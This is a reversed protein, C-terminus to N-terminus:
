STSLLRHLDQLGARALRLAGLIQRPPPVQPPLSGPNSGGGGTGRAAGPQLQSRLAALERVLHLYAAALPGAAGEQAEEWSFPLQRAAPQEPAAPPALPALAALPDAPPGWPSAEEAQGALVQTLPLKALKTKKGALQKKKAM